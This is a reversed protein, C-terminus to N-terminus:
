AGKAKRLRVSQFIPLAAWDVAAKGLSGALFATAFDDLSGWTESYTTAAYAASAFALIVLTWALDAKQEARDKGSWVERWVDDLGPMYNGRSSSAARRAVQGYSQGDLTAWGTFLNSSAEWDVPTIGLEGGKTGVDEGEIAEIDPVEVEHKALLQELSGALGDQEDLDRGAVTSKEGLADELARLEKARDPTTAGEDWAAAIGNHWKVQFLLRAVLDDAAKADAPERRAMELLAMTDRLTRSDAWAIAEKTEKKGDKEEEEEPLEPSAKVKTALLALRRALPEVRLWRQMRAIMDLVREADEDLDASSRAQEISRELAPLGQLRNGLPQEGLETGLLDELHWSAIKMPTKDDNKRRAVYVFPSHTDALVDTLLKRRSAMTVIRTGIGIVLIGALVIALMLLFTLVACVCSQHQHLEISATGSDAPLGPLALKGTYNGPSPDGTVTVVAEVRNLGENQDHASAGADGGEVEGVTPVKLTAKATDGGDDDFLTAAAEEGGHSRLYEVLESGELALKADGKDSSDVPLTSPSVTVNKYSREEGSVATSLPKEGETSVVLTGDIAGASESLPLAFGISLSISKHGEVTLPWESGEGPSSPSEIDCGVLFVRDCDGPLTQPETAGKPLYEVEVTKEKETTNRVLVTLKGGRYPRGSTKTCTHAPEAGTPNKPCVQLPVTRGENGGVAELSPNAAVATATHGWLALAALLCVGVTLVPAPQQSTPMQCSYFTSRKAVRYTGSGPAGYKFSSIETHDASASQVGPM